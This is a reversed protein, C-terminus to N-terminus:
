FGNSPIYKIRAADSQLSTSFEFKSSKDDHNVYGDISILNSSVKIPSNFSPIAM